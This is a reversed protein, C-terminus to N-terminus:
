PKILRQTLVQGSQTTVRILYLGAPLTKASFTSSQSKQVLKGQMDLMTVERISVDKPLQITIFDAVPNPVIQFTLPREIAIIKSFQVSGDLDLQKLRYYSTGPLPREDSFSYSQQTSSTGKGAISHISEFSRADASKQVEFHHNNHESATKWSLQVKEISTWYAKFEMWTVPTSAELATLTVDNGSGGTYSIKFVNTGQQIESGEPLDKFIGNVSDNSTNDVIIWSTGMPISVPTVPDVLKLVANQVILGNTILKDSSTLSYEIELTADTQLTTSASTTFTGISNGPALTAGQGSGTGIQINKTISGTGNLIGANVFVSSVGTGNISLSGGNVITAGQYENGGNLLLRGSQLTVQTSSGGSVANHIVGSLVQTGTGVKELDLRGIDGSAGVPGIGFSGEYNGNQNDIGIALTAVGTSINSKATIYANETGDLAGITQKSAVTGTFAVFALGETGLIFRQAPLLVNSAEAVTPTTNNLEITGQALTLSGSMGSWDMAAQIRLAAPNGGGYVPTIVKLGQNGEIKLKVRANNVATGLFLKRTGTNIMTISPIGSTTSFTLKGENLGSALHLESTGNSAYVLHGITVNGNMTVGAINGYNTSGFTATSSAGTPIIGGSWNTATSWKMFRAATGNTISSNAIIPTGTPRLSLRIKGDETNVVYYSTNTSFGSPVTGTLKVMEGIEFTQGAWVLDASGTTSTITNTTVGTANSWTGDVVDPNKNVTLTQSIFPAPNFSADGMQQAIIATTGPKLIHISGDENVSAITPDVVSYVVPLGSSATAGPQFDAANYAQAPIAPFTITQHNPKAPVDLSFTLTGYGLQDYGGSNPGYNGGGGEPRVIQAFRSLYPAALGKRNVYHNHVLEWVPRINGRGDESVVTQVIGICNSYTTFPVEYGLNYKAIYEFGKLLRNDDYGYLDDGQNWAMECFSGALTVGLVTHGQDRGSEQWQGLNGHVYPVVNSISGMGAGTKFYDIAENYIDRRDCLVGISLMSAMNCLDWNAWYNSICAGNHNILFDHNMPYWITLMWNQFKTFDTSTWGSYSRMIEAANALQYGQIGALLFRDATGALATTGAAWANLIAISKDAYADDGSIKWRLATQYAAAADRFLSAYNETNTGDYGRYVTAPIPNTFARTLSSNANAVLVDWGAKWPQSGANVKSKMRDFDAQKHLLGPHVFSQGQVFQVTALPIVVLWFFCFFASAGRGLTPSVHLNM